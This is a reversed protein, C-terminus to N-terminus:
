CLTEPIFQLRALAARKGIRVIIVGYICKDYKQKAAM